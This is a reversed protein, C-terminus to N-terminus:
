ASCKWSAAEDPNGQGSYRAREPYPCLPRQRSVEDPLTDNHWKTAIIRDPAQGGETWRMLALLIDHEADRFGPVGSVTGPRVGLTNAQIAGAFYWPANTATGACHEMGPVHFYKYWSDAEIGEPVLDKM